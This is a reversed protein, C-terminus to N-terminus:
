FERYNPYSKRKRKVVKIIVNGREVIATVAAHLALISSPLYM